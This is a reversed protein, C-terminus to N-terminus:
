IGFQDMVRWDTPYGGDCYVLAVNRWLFCYGVLPGLSTHCILMRVVCDVVAWRDVNLNVAAFSSRLLSLIWAWTAWSPVSFATICCLHALLLLFCHVRAEELSVGVLVVLINDPSLELCSVGGLGEVPWVMSLIALTCTIDEISYVSSSWNAFLDCSQAISLVPVLPVGLGHQM